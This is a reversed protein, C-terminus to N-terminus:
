ALRLTHEPLLRYECVMMSVSRGRRLHRLLAAEDAFGARHTELMAALRAESFPVQRPTAGAFSRLIVL